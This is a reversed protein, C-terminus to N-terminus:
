DPAAGTEAAYHSRARELALDFDFPERDSLHMLDGLLDGLADEYETGTQKVFSQLTAKAWVARQSNMGDVDRSCEFTPQVCFARLRNQFGCETCLCRADQDWEYNGEMDETGDDTVRVMIKAAIEFCDQQGCKPCKVGVLCNTNAM